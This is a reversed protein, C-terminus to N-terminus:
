TLLLNYTYQIKHTNTFYSRMFTLVLLCCMQKYDSFQSTRIKDVCRTMVLSTLFLEQKTLHAFNIFNSPIGQGLVPALSHKRLIWCNSTVAQKGRLVMQGIKTDLKKFHRTGSIIYVLIFVDM